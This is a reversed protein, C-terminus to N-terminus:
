VQIMEEGLQNDNCKCQDPSRIPLGKSIILANKEVTRTIKKKKKYLLIYSIYIPMM